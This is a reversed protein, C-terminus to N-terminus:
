LKLHGGLLKRINDPLPCSSQQRYDFWVHVARGRAALQECQWVEQLVVFSKTGISEIYTDVRVQKGYYIQKLFEVDIRALILPWDDRTQAPHCLAFLDTRAFEFWVPLVTNNIHGLTDTESFRPEIIKSFM